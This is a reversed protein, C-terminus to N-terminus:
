TPAAQRALIKRRAHVLFEIAGRAGLVPSQMSAEVQWPAENFAACARDLAERLTRDDEPPLPLGLEFMPKVLAVVDAGPAIILCELQPVARALSLYSLDMVILDLPEPITEGDLEGLNTAELNVVRSDLRLSGLLQGHGADVAYVQRAGAELLAITFGGTSAGLDAATKGEVSIGFSALAARMKRTGRLNPPGIVELKADRLVLSRPNNVPCGAVLVRNALIEDVPHEIDPREIRLRSLLEIRQFVRRKAM